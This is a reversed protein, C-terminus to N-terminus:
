QKFHSTPDQASTRFMAFKESVFDYQSATVYTKLDDRKHQNINKFM